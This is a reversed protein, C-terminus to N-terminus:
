LKGATQFPKIGAARVFEALNNSSIYM